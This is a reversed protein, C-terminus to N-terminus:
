PARPAGGRRSADDADARDMALFRKTVQAARHNREGREWMWNGAFWGAITGLFVSSFLFMDALRGLTVGALGHGSLYVLSKAVFLLLGIISGCGLAGYLLRYAGEGIRSIEPWRHGDTPDLRELLTLEPGPRAAPAAPLHPRLQGPPAPDGPRAGAHQDRTM